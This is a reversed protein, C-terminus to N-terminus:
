FCSGSNGFVIITPISGGLLAEAIQIWQINRVLRGNAAIIHNLRYILVFVLLPQRAIAHAQPLRNQPSFKANWFLKTITDSGSKTADWYSM